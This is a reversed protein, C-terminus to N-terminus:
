SAGQQDRQEIQEKSSQPLKNFLEEVLRPQTIRDDVIMNVLNLLSACTVHDDKLDLQGPHVSNNGVVRVVDLAQQIQIKLGRAVLEGIDTNLDKGSLEFHICLKQIALRLLAAASRPSKFVITAAEEYDEKITVPIDANPAPAGGREPYLIKKDQWLIHQDCRACVSAALNNVELDDDM